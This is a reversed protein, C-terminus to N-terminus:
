RIAGVRDLVVRLVHWDINQTVLPDEYLMLAFSGHEHAMCRTGEIGRTEIHGMKKEDYVTCQSIRINVETM